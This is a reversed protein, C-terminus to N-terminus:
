DGSIKDWLAAMKRTLRWRNHRTHTGVHKVYHEVVGHHRLFRLYNQTKQEGTMERAALSGTTLGERGESHLVRLLDFSRGRATNLAVQRVRSMVDDDVGSKNLVAALSMALRTLQKTLRASFERDSLIDESGKTPHARMLAIFKGLQTVDHLAEDSIEIGAGLEAANERLFKVYGGTLAMAESLDEPHQSEPKGDSLIRMNRAEQHVSRQAVENEFEDDIRDMVVCDLFRAGLESDDIERLASTGCLLFTMRHGVYDVIKHNRYHTRTVKDYLARAESLIRPLDPAKLLTDGDKIALTKGRALAILSRDEGDDDKWGDHFGRLSDKSLVHEADVALGELLTTKLTSPPSIVKVWLQEGVFETSYATAFMVALAHDAGPFWRVAKRWANVVIAYSSCPKPQILPAAHHNGDAAVTASGVFWEPPVPEVKALLAGLRSVRESEVEASLFDRVDFGSPREPDFGREGWKLWEVSAPPEKMTRFLATARKVAAFGAGDAGKGTPHDSDFALVVRKGAFLPLYRGLPKGVAGCNATALVNVNALQTLNARRAVEWFALANGWSEHLWVLEWRKDYLPIGHMAHPLTPTPRLEWRDGFRIRQYLQTLKGDPSYGPILWRGTTISQVVDWETLTEPYLLGREAAFVKSAGNTADDSKEWLVRLFTLVNGGGKEQGGGCVWCKWLGTEISVSFKDEKGCFPCDGDANRGNPKLDVGHFAFPRLKEPLQQKTAQPM